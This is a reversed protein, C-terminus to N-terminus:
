HVERFEWIDIVWVTILEKQQCPRASNLAFCHGKFNSFFNQRNSVLQINWKNKFPTKFFCISALLQSPDGGSKQIIRKYKNRPDDSTM